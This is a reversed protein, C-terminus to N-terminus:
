LPFVGDKKLRCKKNNSLSFPNLGSLKKSVPQNYYFYAYKKVNWVLHKNISENRYHQKKDVQSNMKRDDKM